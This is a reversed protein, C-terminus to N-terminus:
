HKNPYLLNNILALHHDDHEAVFYALDTINLPQNLRTHMAVKDLDQESARKLAVIFKERANAFDTILKELDLEDHKAEETAKNDMDAPKLETAGYIIQNYRLSWLPELDTLHGIHRKISWTDKEANPLEKGDLKYILRIATGSLREIIGPLLEGSLQNPFTRTIWPQVNM